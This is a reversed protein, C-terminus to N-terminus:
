AHDRHRAEKVTQIDKQVGAIAQEPQPPVAQGVERKGFLALGGAILFLAATVTLAALWTPLLLALAIIATAVLAGLGLVAVLGAAGLAGAGLGALKAKQSLELQALKLESGILESVQASLRSVLDGTSPDTGSTDPASAGTRQESM